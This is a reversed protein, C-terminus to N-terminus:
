NVWYDQIRYEGRIVGVGCSSFLGAGTNAMVFCCLNGIVAGSGYGCIIGGGLFFHIYMYEINARDM